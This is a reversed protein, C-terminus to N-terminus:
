IVDYKSGLVDVYKVDTRGNDVTIHSEFINRDFLSYCSNFPNRQDDPDFLDVSIADSFWRNYEIDIPAFTRFSHTKGLIDFTVAHDTKFDRTIIMTDCAINKPFMM